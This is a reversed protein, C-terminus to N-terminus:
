EPSSRLSTSGISCSERVAPRSLIHNLNERIDDKIPQEKDPTLDAASRETFYRRLFDRIQPMRANVEAASDLDQM